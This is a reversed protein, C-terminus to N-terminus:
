FYRFPTKTKALQLPHPHAYKGSDVALKGVALHGQEGISFLNFFSQFFHM